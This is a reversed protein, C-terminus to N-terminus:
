LHYFRILVRCCMQKSIAFQKTFSTCQVTCVTLPPYKNQTSISSIFTIHFVHYTMMGGSPGATPLSALSHINFSPSQGSAIRRWCGGEFPLSGCKQYVQESHWVMKTGAPKNLVLTRGVLVTKKSLIMEDTYLMTGTALTMICTLQVSEKINQKISSKSSRIINVSWTHKKQSGCM